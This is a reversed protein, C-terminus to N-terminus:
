GSLFIQEVDKLPSAHLHMDLGVISLQTSTIKDPSSSYMSAKFFAIFLSLFLNVSIICQSHRTHVVRLPLSSRVKKSAITRDVGIFNMLDVHQLANGCGSREIPTPEPVRIGVKM